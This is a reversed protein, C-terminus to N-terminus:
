VRGYLFFGFCVDYYIHFVSLRGGLDPVLYPHRSNGNRNLVASSTRTLAVLCSFCIFPMWIPFFSTFKARQLHVLRM